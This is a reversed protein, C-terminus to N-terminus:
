LELAKLLIQFQQEMNELEKHSNEIFTQNNRKQAPEYRIANQELLEMMKNQNELKKLIMNEGNEDVEIKSREYM